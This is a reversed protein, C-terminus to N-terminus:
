ILTNSTRVSGILMCVFLVVCVAVTGLFFLGWPPLDRQCFAGVCM